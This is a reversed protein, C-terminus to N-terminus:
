HIGVEKTIANVDRLLQRDNKIQDTIRNVSHMVTTHNRNGLLQGIKTLSMRLKTKALYMIIQRPMMCERTRSNGIVDTKPVTYYDTVSDILCEITVASRPVPDQAVFGIMKVEKQTQKLMEAVSKVTPSTHELEYKAIAQKLIGELARVSSTINHAIFELVDQNIFVKAEQCKNQLIALRTEYDPMKVDVIMGSQFRSVLRENLLALEHPPRDSSIIIQKGSEYLANFTHFFEEQTRDKNAIFQIDDIILTNVKRYKNRFHNMNKAQIANVVDNVFGETTTYVVLRSPDNRLIESGTAQLLHTKGLGVGGHIFLPNYNQGPYKAVNQCAAHALRNEPSTIFNELSYSPNFIRSVIGDK